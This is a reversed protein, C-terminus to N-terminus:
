VKARTSGSPAFRVILKSVISGAVVWIVAAIAVNIAQGFKPTSTSFLNETFGGFDSYFGRTFSVLGNAPNAEFLVFIAYVLVVAAIVAAVGRVVAAVTGLMRGVTSMGTMIERGGPARSRHSDGRTSM